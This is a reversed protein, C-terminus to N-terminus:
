AYVCYSTNTDDCLMATFLYARATNNQNFKIVNCLECQFYPTLKPLPKKCLLPSIYLM